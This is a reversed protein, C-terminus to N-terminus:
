LGVFATARQPTGQQKIPLKTERAEQSGDEQHPLTVVELSKLIEEAHKIAKYGSDADKREM